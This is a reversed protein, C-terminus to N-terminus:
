ATHPTHHTNYVHLIRDLVREVSLNELPIEQIVEVTPGLPRWLHPKTAGFLALTPIRLLGALHSTGTDHGVFCGCGKLEQAIKLFPAKQLVTIMNSHMQKPIHQRVEILLEALLTGESPGALLLVPYQQRVLSITLRAFSAAPWRIYASGSGPHLAISPKYPCFAAGGTNPLVISEPTLAPVGVWKAFYEVVHKSGDENQILEKFFMPVIIAEKAGAALLNQKALETDETWSIVLDTQQFLHRLKQQRIGEPSFVEAWQSEYNYVEDAIGWAKALPMAGPNGIFTIHSHIHKERLAVLIPFTVLSDGLADSRIVVINM